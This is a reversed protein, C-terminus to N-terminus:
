GRYDVDTRWQGPPEAHLAAYVEAIADPSFETDPQVMGHITVTAVHIGQEGYEQAMCRVLNRLAAKGVGLGTMGAWPREAYGGGTFLLTGGGAEVMGPVVHQAAVLAGVVDVALHDHLAEPSLESPMGKSTKAANYVLVEVPGLRRAVEDLSQQLAQPDAVDAAATAVAAGSRELGAALQQLREARRAILGVPMGERAFRQAIARGLGPGAGVIVFSM